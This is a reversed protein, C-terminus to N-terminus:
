SCEQVILKVVELEAEVSVKAARLQLVEDQVEKCGVGEPVLRTFVPEALEGPEGPKNAEQAAKAAAKVEKPADIDEEEPAGITPNVAVPVDEPIGIRDQVVSQSDVAITDTEKAEEQEIAVLCAFQEKATEVNEQAKEFNKRQLPVLPPTKPVDPACAKAVEVADRGNKPNPADLLVDPPFHQITFPPLAEVLEPIGPALPGQAPPSDPSIVEVTLTSPQTPDLIVPFDDGAAVTSTAAQQAVTSTAAQEAQQAVANAPQQAVASAPQQPAAASAPQQGSAPQAAASSPQQAAATATPQATTSPTQQGSTSPTQQGSTSPTQKAAATATPQATASPTQKAAPTATQQAVATPPQQAAAAAAQHSVGTLALAVLLAAGWRGVRSGARNNPM